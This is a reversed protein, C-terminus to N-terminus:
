LTLFGDANKVMRIKKEAIANNIAEKKIELSGPIDRQNIAHWPEYELAIGAQKLPKFLEEMAPGECGYFGEQDIDELVELVEGDKMKIRMEIDPYGPKLMLGLSEVTEKSENQEADASAAAKPTGFEM